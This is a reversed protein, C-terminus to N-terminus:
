VCFAANVLKLHRHINKLELDQNESNKMISITNM